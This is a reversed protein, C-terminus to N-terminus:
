VTTKPSPLHRQICIPSYQFVRLSHLTHRQPHDVRESTQTGFRSYITPLHKWKPKWKEGPPTARGIKALAIGVRGSCGSIWQLGPSQM